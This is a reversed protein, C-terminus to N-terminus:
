CNSFTSTLKWRQRAPLWCYTQASRQTRGRCLQTIEVCGRRNSLVEISGQGSIEPAAVFSLSRDSWIFADQFEQSLGNVQSVVLIDRDGDGNIDVYELALATPNPLFLDIPLKDVQKGRILILLEAHDGDVALLDIKLNKTEDIVLRSTVKLAPVALGAEVSDLTQPKISLTKSNEAGAAGCVAVISLVAVAQRIRSSLHTPYRRSGPQDFLEVTNM